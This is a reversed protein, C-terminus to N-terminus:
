RLLLGGGTGHSDVQAMPISVTGLNATKLQLTGGKITVLTGTVRDGNKLTALDAHAWAALCIFVLLTTLTLKM